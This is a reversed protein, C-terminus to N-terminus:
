ARPLWAALARAAAPECRQVQAVMLQVLFQAVDLLGGVQEVAPSALVAAARSAMRDLVADVTGASRFRAHVEEVPSRAAPARLADLLWAREDPHRALHEAALSTVRGRRIDSGRERGKQDSMDLVDDQTQFVLGLGSLELTLAAVREAPWGALVAAGRFPLAILAGTKMRAVRECTEWSLLERALMDMELSQGRVTEDACSVIADTLRWRMADDQGALGAARFSLVLLRDGVNIAQAAGHTAWVTPRGRRVRDGDQLDDHVLTANHLIECAAAWAVAARDPVGLAKCAALALRTRIRKGGAEFHEGAMAGLRDPGGPDVLERMLQETAEVARDLEQAATPNSGHSLVDMM